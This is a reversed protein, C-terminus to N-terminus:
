PGVRAPTKDEVWRSLIEGVRRPDSRVLEEIQVRALAEPDIEGEAQAAAAGSAARSLRRAGRLSAALLAVFGLAAAIEVGHRM